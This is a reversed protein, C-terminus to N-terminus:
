DSPNTFKQPGFVMLAPKGGIQIHNPKSFFNDRVYSMDNKAADLSVADQDEYMVGFDLGFAATKAIIADSSAKNQPLDNAGNLGPWDILVGDIGAYKMTLLQYEIVNGDNSSYEGILPSYWSAVGTASNRANLSWHLGGVQFWPMMHVYIKRTYTKKISLPRAVQQVDTQQVDEDPPPGECAAAAVLSVLLCASLIRGRPALRSVM